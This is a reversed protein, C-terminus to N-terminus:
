ISLWVRDWRLVWLENTAYHRLVDGISMSTLDTGQPPGPNRSLYVSGTIFVNGALLARLQLEKHFSITQNDSM